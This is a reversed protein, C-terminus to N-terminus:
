IILIYATKDWSINYNLPICVGWEEDVNSLADILEGFHQALKHKGDDFFEWKYGWATHHHKLKRCCKSVSSPMILNDAWAELATDYIRLVKGTDPHIKVVRKLSPNIWKEKFEVIEQLSYWKDLYKILKQQEVWVLESIKYASMMSGDYEFKRTARTNNSQEKNTSWKCNWPEYNWNNDIRDLTKGKPRDGMDAYFNEFCELWRTCVTIWKAGYKPYATSQANLCRQKMSTWSRYAPTGCQGHSTISQIRKYDNNICWCSNSRKLINWWVVRQNWCICKCMFQTKGDSNPLRAIITWNNVQLWPTFLRRKARVM